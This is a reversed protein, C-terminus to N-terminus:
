AYLDLAVIGARQDEPSRGAHAFGRQGLDDGAHSVGVEDLEGGHEAPDLFDLLDHGVGLPCPLVASAGDDEDVLHMAEVFGLLVSKQRVDLFAADPQDARGGLIRREFNDGRQQRTRADVDKLRQAFLLDNAQQLPSEAVFGSTQALQM